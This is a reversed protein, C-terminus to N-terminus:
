MLLLSIFHVSPVAEHDFAAHILLSALYMDHIQADSMSSEVSAGATIPRTPENSYTVSLREVATLVNAAPAVFAGM